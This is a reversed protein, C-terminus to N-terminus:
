KFLEIIEKEKPLDIIKKSKLKIIILNKTQYIKKIEQKTFEISKKIDVCEIKYKNGDKDITYTIDDKDSINLNANIAKKINIYNVISVISMFITIFLSSYGNILLEKDFLHGILIFYIALPVFVLAIILCPRIQSLIIENIRLNNKTKNFSYEIMNTKSVNIKCIENKIVELLHPNSCYLLILERLKKEYVISLAKRNTKFTFTYFGVRGQYEYSINSLDNWNIRDKIKKFHIISFGQNDFILKCFPSLPSWIIIYIYFIATIICITSGVYIMLDIALALILSTAFLVIVAFTCLIFMTLNKMMSNKM